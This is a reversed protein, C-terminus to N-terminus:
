QEYRRMWECRDIWETVELLAAETKVANLSSWFAARAKEYRGSFFLAAGLSRLRRADLGPAVDSLDLPELAAIAEGWRSMRFLLRGRLYRSLREQPAVVCLSDLITLRISDAADALFYRRYSDRLGGGGLALLRVAAAETLNDSIDAAQVRAFLKSARDLEGAVWFADGFYIHLALFRAPHPDRLILSDLVVTVARYDRMRYASVIYGALSEFGGGEAYSAKFLQRARSYEKEDLRRRAEQNRAAIVRACVKRFITPQRFRVDVVDADHDDVHLRGLFRQWETILSSLPRGYAAVYDGTRYVQMLLRMGYSDMLYQCFSGALVYSVATSQTAFGSLSMMASIDAAVGFKVIAAASQHLSRNGWSGEVAMAVGEVLGASLSARLVPLGFAGAVVHALEHKLVADVSQQALHIEDRWPKAINTSGTGMLRRKLEVSPYLYSTVTPPERLPFVSMLQALRFEHEVALRQIEEATISSPSYYLVFHRSELKGGLSRQIYGATSEFGLQCRFLYILLLAAAVAASVPRRRPQLLAKLLGNGRKWAPEDPECYRVLLLSLWIFLVGLLVTLLRFALLPFTITLVEDYSFGPFYGFFFNHSYIAPTFYGLALVYLFSAAMAGVFITRSLRYHVGCFLGFASSFWVSVFPLLLYFLFGETMSCNKVLLANATLITLPILLLQFNLMMSMRLTAVIRVPTWGAAGQELLHQRVLHITILGSVASSLLAIVASFEYGLYNLLPIRTCAVSATLYLLAALVAVRSRLLPPFVM